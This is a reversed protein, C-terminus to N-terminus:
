KKIHGKKTRPNGTLPKEAKKQCKHRKLCEQKSKENTNLVAGCKPCVIEITM